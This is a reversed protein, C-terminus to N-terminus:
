REDGAARIEAEFKHTDGGSVTLTVETTDGPKLDPSVGMAMIHLDNPKFEVKTGSKVPIPLAEMMQVEFNYECYQHMLASEAGEVKARSGLAPERAQAKVRAPLNEDGPDVAYDYAGPRQEDRAADAPAVPAGGGGGEAAPADLPRKQAVAKRCGIREAQGPDVGARAGGGRAVRLM